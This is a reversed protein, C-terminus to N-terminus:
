TAAAHVGATDYYEYFEVAQGNAFRWYDAKPSEFLKGTHKNRWAMNGRVFVLDGQAIFENMEFEVMEWDKSLGAFYERLASRKDTFAVHPAGAALSGLKLDDAFINLWEDVSTGKSTRWRSYVPKLLAVNAAENGM